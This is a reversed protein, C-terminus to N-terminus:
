KVRGSPLFIELVQFHCLVKVLFVKQTKDVLARQKKLADGGADQM